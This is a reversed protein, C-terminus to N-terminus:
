PVFANPTPTDTSVGFHQSMFGSNSRMLYWVGTSPRFVAIDARGDGDYDAPVPKDESLGFATITFSGTTSNIIYWVGTSPRFVAVDTKGDGDFDAASPVDTSIGWRVALQAGNISSRYWWDGTSPRFIAPDSKGDGDFDGRVPKDGALGFQVNSSIGSSNIRYWFNNSPRYIVFDTKGDGDFDSPRPTDGAEGGWQVFNQTGNLSSLYWWAGSSPRFIAIDTKLDGDYDAPVPVDGALAFVTQTIASDSSRFVYWKNESPRFVSVDAKGDGDYDFQVSPPVFTNLLRAVGMRSVGNIRTFQGGIIIKGDSQLQIDYVSTNASPAFTQDVTGNQNLRALAGRVSTGVVSFQGAILIKGDPQIKLGLVAGNATQAVSPDLSGDGNLRGVSRVATDGNLSTFAGGLVIRGDAQLELDNVTSNAGGAAGAPAFTADNTGDSNLRAIRGRVASGVATFEGGILYKGDPQVVVRYIIHNPLEPAFSDDIAGNPHLRAIRNTSSPTVVLGGVVIKGDALVAIDYINSSGSFTTSFSMDQSGDPNLRVLVIGNNTGVLIKGDPQLTVANVVTSPATTNFFPVFSADLTGDANFRALARREINNAILFSGAVLVKGDPQLLVRRVTGGTTARVNFSTDLVGDAGFRAISTAGVWGTLGALIRDDALLEIENVFSGTFAETNTFTNDLSGDGGNLRAIRKISTGNYNSFRGGVIIKGDSRVSLDEITGDAGPVNQNFTPDILGDATLRSIGGQSTGRLSSYGGAVLLKGSSLIKVVELRGNGTESVAFTPDVAGNTEFKAIYPLSQTTSGGVAVVKGDSLMELDQITKGSATGIFTTDVSGDANLRVISRNQPFPIGVVFFSGAIIIKGDPQVVMDYVTRNGDLQVVTFSPDISGDPNLRRIGPGIEGPAAGFINGAVLIKGDPLAEVAYVPAGLGFTGYIGPGNFTTDVTGDANLRAVSNAAYGQVGTFTGGILMKGDALQEIVNVSGGSTGFAGSNFSLDLEGAGFVPVAAAVLTLVLRLAFSFLIGRATM